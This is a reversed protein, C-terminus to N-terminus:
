RPAEALAPFLHLRAYQLLLLTKADVIEGRAVLDLADEFELELVEIDEGEESVGGGQSVKSSPDYEAVFFHLKETVSGPSMYAEFVPRVTGVRYGTEEEVELRIREEPEARDLLGAPTEILLGDHGNVFAPYRFQRTLVVTRRAPDYLLLTAGNGRDYTERTQRQWTGDRRRYDFTTKKLVYWDDSLLRVDHVRVRDTM